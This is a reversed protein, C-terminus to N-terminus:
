KMSMSKILSQLQNIGLRKYLPKFFSIKHDLLPYCIDKWTLKINLFNESRMALEPVIPKLWTLIVRFFNIGMTYIMQVNLKNNIDKSLLWPSKDSIYCNAFDTLEIIKKVVLSFQRQEFFKEIVSSFNVFKKYVEIDLLVQSLLNNCNNNIFKSCRSAINVIKNVIDSNIKNFFDLLNIEIDEINSSLKSAYYYRLSDSDFHKIWQKASIVSGKSKSIKNGNMTVYGHVFIKNPIRFSCAKLISPWFLSHFYVIDKGIFHYLETASNKEWYENFSLKKQKECLNKFTSIYGIPADMWVYFYKNSFGPIKFGFYPADRSINWEKLGKVFWENTKKVIQKPLSGSVIWKKLFNTFKPLDFFLHMSKKLTPVTNSLISKPKILDTPNYISGCKECNDGYQDKSYCAPCIGKIFRDPLFINEKFDYFQSIIKKKILNNETLSNYIKNIFLLNEQSHTYHYNDHSINFQLFDSKHDEWINKILIEPTTNKEKAKLMIATGHSDDACIFWTENGRMKQYRVWIDAQIHELMHGLHIPGNSYPLACTVLIKRINKIM